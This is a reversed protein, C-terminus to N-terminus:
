RVRPSGMFYPHNMRRVMTKLEAPDLEGDKNKDAFEFEAQMFNMFEERSVKGNKDTDMLDLLQALPTLGTALKTSDAGGTVKASDAITPAVATVMTTVLSGAAFFVATAIIMKRVKLM